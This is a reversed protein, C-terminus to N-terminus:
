QILKENYLMDYLYSTIEENLNMNYPNNKYLVTVIEFYGIKSIATESMDVTDFADVITKEINKIINNNIKFKKTINTM